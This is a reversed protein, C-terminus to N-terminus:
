SDYSFGLRSSGRSSGSTSRSCNPLEVALSLTMQGVCYFALDTAAALPPLPLAEVHACRAGIFCHTHVRLDTFHLLAECIGVLNSDGWCEAAIM